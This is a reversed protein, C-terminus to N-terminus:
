RATIGGYVPLYELANPVASLTEADGPYLQANPHKQRRYHLQYADRLTVFDPTEWTVPLMLSAMVARIRQGGPTGWDVRSETFVAQVDSSNGTLNKTFQRSIRNFLRDISKSKLGKAMDQVDQPLADMPIGQINGASQLHTYPRSLANELDAVRMGPRLHPTLAPVLAVEVSNHYTAIKEQSNELSASLCLGLQSLGPIIRSDIEGLIRTWGTDGPAVFMRTQQTYAKAVLGEFPNYLDYGWQVLQERLTEAIHERDVKEPIRKMQPRIRRHNKTRDYYLYLNHWRSM